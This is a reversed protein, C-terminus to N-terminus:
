HLSAMFTSFSPWRAQWSLMQKAHNINYIKGLGSRASRTAGAADALENNSAFTPMATGAYATSAHAAEVIARRTMPSGDAVLALEGRVSPGCELAAIVADAADDYHVQNILGAENGRVVGAKMWYAHGGRRTDYLGAFRLVIGGEGCVLEESSLLPLAGPSDSVPSQEDVVGGSDETLVGGSSTFVFNGSSDDKGSWLHLADSVAQVYFSGDPNSRTRPPACFVIYPAKDREDLASAIAPEIGMSRLNNHSADSLTAGVVRAGPHKTLWRKAVRQGLYGAGFILLDTGAKPAVSAANATSVVCPRLNLTLTLVSLAVVACGQWIPRRRGVGHLLRSNASPSSCM